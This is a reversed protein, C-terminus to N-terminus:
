YLQKEERLGKFHKLYWPSEDSTASTPAADTKTDVTVTEMKKQPQQATLHMALAPYKFYQMLNLRQLEQEDKKISYDFAM